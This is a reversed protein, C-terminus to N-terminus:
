VHRDIPSTIYSLACTVSPVLSSLVRADWLTIGLEATSAVVCVCGRRRGDAVGDLRVASAVAGRRM